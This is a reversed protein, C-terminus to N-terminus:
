VSKVTVQKRNMSKKLKSWALRADGNAHVQSKAKDIIGFTVKNNISLLMDNYANDNNVVTADVNPDVPELVEKYGRASATALFKRLWIQWDSEKGIFPLIQIAM